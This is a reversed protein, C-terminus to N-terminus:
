PGRAASLSFGVARVQEFGWFWLHHHRRQKRSVLAATCPQEQLRGTVLSRRFSSARPARSGKPPSPAWCRWGSLPQLPRHLVRRLLRCPRAAGCAWGAPARFEVRRRKAKCLLTIYHCGSAPCLRGTEWTGERGLGVEELWGDRRGRTEGRGRGTVAGARSESNRPPRVYGLAGPRSPAWGGVAAAARAAAGAPPPSAPPPGAPLPLGASPRALGPRDGRPPSHPEGPRM